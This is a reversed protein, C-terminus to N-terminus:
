TTPTTRETLISVLVSSGRGLSTMVFLRKLLQKAWVGSSFLGFNNGYMVVMDFSGSKFDIGKFAM